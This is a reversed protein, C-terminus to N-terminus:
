NESPKEVHDIVLVGVPAKTSELKLGLQEQFASFISPGSTEPPPPALPAGTPVEGEDPTWQLNIDYKGTLGTKDLVSRGLLQSLPALISGIPIGRGILHGRSWEMPGAHGVPQGNLDKIGNPYTEDPKAEQLRPGGKAVVLVYVPLEKTETHVKLEFRDALLSLFMLQRQYGNLKSLGAADASDVKAELDYTESNVWNPGGSLEGDKVGYAQKVLDRLTVRTAIIGDPRFLIRPGIGSNDPKITAVDYRLADGGPSALEPPPEPIAWATEKTPRQFDLQSPGNHQAWTGAISKGDASLKGTYSGVM